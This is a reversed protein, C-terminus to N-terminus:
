GSVAASARRSRRRVPAVAAALDDLGGVVTLITVVCFDILQDRTLDLGGDVWVLVLEAIGGTMVLAVAKTVTDDIRPLDATQQAQAVVVDALARMADFRRRLLAASGQTQAFVVRARRPDDTMETIMTGVAARTKSTLDDPAATIAALMGAIAGAVIDDYVAVALADLDDFSEYFFRPGVRARECVGRVSTASWGQTGIMDLGAAMLRARRAARREDAPVGGYARSAARTM